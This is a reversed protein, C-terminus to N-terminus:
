DDGALEDLTQRAELMMERVIEAAPMVATIRHAGAGAPLGMEEFDGTTEPTPVVASFKPMPYPVMLTQPFLVTSGITAPPPPPNPIARGEWERVVRTKLVRYPEGPMEPGFLTTIVTEGRRANVLRRKYEPHAYAEESAVLRSGVWVGDAGRELALAADRGTVIGGAALVPKTTLRRIQKLLPKLPTTSRTHGGAEMGQAVIGHVGLALAQSAQLASPVQAWVRTGVAQLARVWEVKPLDFHFVVLPVREQVAVGIHADLTGPGFATDVVGFDIGFPQQTLQRIRQILMQTGPPPETGNGLVGLGGANSVAAVLEPMAIFGMGAGVFPLRIGFDRTLQTHLSLSDGSDDHGGGDVDAARATLSALPSAAVTLGGLLKLLRRRNMSLPHDDRTDM